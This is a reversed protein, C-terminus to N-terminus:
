KLIFLPGRTFDNLATMHGIMYEKSPFHWCQSNKRCIVQILNGLKNIHFEDGYLQSDLRELINRIVDMQQETFKLTTTIM